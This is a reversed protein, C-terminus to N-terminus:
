HPRNLERNAARMWERVTAKEQRTTAESMRRKYEARLEKNSATVDHFGQVTADLEARQEAYTARQEDTWGDQKVKFWGM